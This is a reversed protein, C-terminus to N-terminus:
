WRERIWYGTLFTDGDNQPGPSTDGSFLVHGPAIRAVSNDVIKQADDLREALRDNMSRWQTWHLESKQLRTLDNSPTSKVDVECRCAGSESVLATSSLCSLPSPDRSMVQKALFDLSLDLPPLVAQDYEQEEGKEEEEDKLQFKELVAKLSTNDHRQLLINEEIGQRLSPVSSSVIEADDTVHEPLLATNSKKIELSQKHLVAELSGDEVSRLLCNGVQRRARERAQIKGFVDELTGNGVAKLLLRGVERKTHERLEDENVVGGECENPSAQLVDRMDEHLDVAVDALMREECACELSVEL